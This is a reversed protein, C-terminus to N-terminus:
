CLEIFNRLFQIGVQQSKEPHFQAGHIHEKNVYAVINEGYNTYAIKVNENESIRMAYSHVFYFCSNDNINQFIPINNSYVDNWGMHPIILTGNLNDIREVTANIFGLGMTSGGEVGLTALLQMGVCIGLVPVKNILVHENLAEAFGSKHMKQAAASFSGVGPLIIKSAGILQEPLTILEFDVGIHKIVKIVSGINGVELDVIKLM